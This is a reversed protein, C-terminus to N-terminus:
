RNERPGFIVEAGIDALVTDIYEAQTICNPCVDTVTHDDAFSLWGTIGRWAEPEPGRMAAPKFDHDVVIRDGVISETGCRDCTWVLHRSM